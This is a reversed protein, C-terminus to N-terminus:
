KFMYMTNWELILFRFYYAFFIFIDLWAFTILFQENTGFIEKHVGLLVQVEPRRAWPWDFNHEEAADSQWAPSATGQDPGGL